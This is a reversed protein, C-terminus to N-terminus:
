ILSVPPARSRFGAHGATAPAADDRPLSVVIAAQEFPYLLAGVIAPLAKGSADGGTFGNKAVSGRREAHGTAPLLFEDEASLPSPAVGGESAVRDAHDPMRAAETPFFQALFLTALLVLLSAPAFGRERIAADKGTRKTM